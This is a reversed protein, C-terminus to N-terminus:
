RKPRSTAFRHHLQEKTESLYVMRDAVRKIEVRNIEVTEGRGFLTGLAGGARIVLGLLQGSSADIRVDDVVGVEEDRLDYVQTGKAITFEDSLSGVTEPINVAPLYSSPLLLGSFPYGLGPATWGVPPEGYQTPDFAPLHELDEKTLNLRLADGNPTANELHQRPVLVDNGFLGGTNVVFDTVENTRPDIVVRQVSGAERGDNTQVKADLDVRM